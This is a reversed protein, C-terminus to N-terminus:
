RKSGEIQLFGYYRRLAIFLLVIFCPLVIGEVIGIYKTIMQGSLINQHIKGIKTSIITESYTRIKFM